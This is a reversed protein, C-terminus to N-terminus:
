IQASSLEHKHTGCCNRRWQKQVNRVSDRTRLPCFCFTSYCALDIKDVARAYAALHAPHETGSLGDPEAVALILYILFFTQM